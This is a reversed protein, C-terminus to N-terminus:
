YRSYRPYRGRAGRIFASFIKLVIVVAILGFFIAFVYQNGQLYAEKYLYFGSLGGCALSIITAPGKEFRRSLMTFAIVFVIFGLVFSIFDPHEFSFLNLYDLM